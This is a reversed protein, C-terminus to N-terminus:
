IYGNHIDFTHIICLNIQENNLVHSQAVVGFHLNNQGRPSILRKCFNPKSKFHVYRMCIFFIPSENVFNNRM